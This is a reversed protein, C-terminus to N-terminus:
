AFHIGPTLENKSLVGNTFIRKVNNNLQAVDTAFPLDAPSNWNMFRKKGSMLRADYHTMAFARLQRFL